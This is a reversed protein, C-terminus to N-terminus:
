DSARHAPRGPTSYRGRGSVFRSTFASIGHVAAYQGLLQLFWQQRANPSMEQAEWRRVARRDTMLLSALQAQSLHLKRRLRVIERAIGTATRHAVRSM